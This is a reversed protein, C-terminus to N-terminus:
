RLIRQWARTIGQAMRTMGHDDPHVRDLVLGRDDGLLSLGDLCYIGADATQRRSVVGEIAARYNQISDGYRNRAGDADQARWIPTLCLIPQHAHTARVIEVFRDYTRAYDAASEQEGRYSNTGIAISLVDWDDRSAIYEAVPADGWAAGGFGLNLADWGLADAAQSVYTMGPSLAMAGQTISDGHALWRLPRPAAPEPKADDSLYLARVLTHAGLPLLIRWPGALEPDFPAEAAFLPVKGSYTLPLSVLALARYGYYLGLMAHSGIHNVTALEIEIHATTTQFRLEVGAAQTARFATAEPFCDRWLRPVRMLALGRRSRETEAVNLWTVPADPQTLDIRQM